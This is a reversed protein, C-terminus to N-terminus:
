NVSIKNTKVFNNFGFIKLVFKKLYFNTKDSKLWMKFSQYLVNSFVKFQTKIVM